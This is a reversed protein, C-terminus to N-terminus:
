ILKVETMKARQQQRRYNHFAEISFMLLGLWILAFSLWRGAPVDEGFVFVALLLSLSPAIYQCFGLMTLPIRSAASAFWILPLVTVLGGLGLMAVQTTERDVLLGDYGAWLLYAVGLPAVFLTEVGLGVSSSVALQKRMLGYLGFTIALTLGLWPLEGQAVLESAVGTAALATAAWQLPRMTEKLFVWGLVISVLPNIFYGLSTEAIRGQQIAFIFILWNCSLLLSCVMLVRLQRWRLARVAPWQRALTILIALLPESWVVRHALVELPHAFSVWVFYVPALGWFCYAALAYGFGARTRRQEYSEVTTDNM